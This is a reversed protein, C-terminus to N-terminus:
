QERESKFKKELWGHKSGEGGVSEVAEQREKM